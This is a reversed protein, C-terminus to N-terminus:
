TDEGLKVAQHIRIRSLMVILTVLGLTLMIAVIGYMQLQDSLRQVVEFPPVQASPDSTLQFLPVFLRNTIYGILVGIAIGAGSTLFQESIMMFVLQRFSFGMARFIGYQLTRASFLLTWYLLFGFLCVLISIIFGLTMVGNIALQFPDNMVRIWEQNMDRIQRFPIDKEEIAKYLPGSLAGEKLKLWVQYPEVGLNSQIYPLNGIVMLPKNGSSGYNDDQDEPDVKNPNWGPWYDIIGFVIFNAKADWGMQLTDGTQLHMIDALSRSILVASPENAILNLYNYFHYPLLGNKMWATEGFDDTVIGTLTVESSGKEVSTLLTKKHTFVQAAHEVGPLDKFTQFSPEIYQLKWNRREYEDRSDSSLGSLIFESPKNNQWIPDIVIDTGYKYRIKDGINQNLTRAASTSFLGTAVTMTLFVMIFQYQSGGRGVQVLTAFMSPSWIRKGLWFIFRILWPYLRLALLGGSLIFLAPVAFLLPDISFDNSDLGLTMLDSMRRNFTFLGYISIGFLLVDVYYKHWFSGGQSRALRQKHTVISQRTAQYVPVLIVLLSLLIAFLAYQLAELSLEARLSSRQVFELFGNSAGLVKTIALGLPLGAMLAFLALLLGEILHAFMIQLRSAGRSRLVAIENKQREAVLGAVMFMYFALMVVVPIYLSLLVSQLKQKKAPYDKLTALAPAKVDNSYKTSLLKSKIGTIVGAFDAMSRQRLDRYDLMYNWATKRVYADHKGLIERVFLGYDLFFTSNRQSLDFNWYIASDNSDTPYNVVGVPKVIIPNQMEDSKLHFETNLVAQYNTLAADTVLVEFVGNVPEKAPWRGDTLEVHQEFETFATIEGTKRYQKGGEGITTWAEMSGTALEKYYSQIPLGFLAGQGDMYGDIEHFVLENKEKASLSDLLLVANLMGPYEQYTANQQLFEMDKVVARQMIAESYIPISSGLAVAVTMGLLLSFSLGKNKIMKRLIM